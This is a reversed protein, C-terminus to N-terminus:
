STTKGIGQGTRLHRSPFSRDRLRLFYREWTLSILAGTGVSLSFYVGFRLLHHQDFLSAMFPLKLLWALIFVHSLYISYSWQGIGGVAKTVANMPFHRISFLVWVLLVGFALYILTFGVTLPFYSTDPDLFPTFSLLAIICFPAFARVRKAFHKIREPRFQEMWAILVGCLLSDFRLHTNTYLVQDLQGSFSLPRVAYSFLRMALALAMLVILTRPIANSSLSGHRGAYWLALCLAVYFHEEIALSWTITFPWWGFGYLYNQLFTLESILGTWSFQGGQINVWVAFPLLAYFTPYIKFGRRVLFRLPRVSGHLSYEKFLLGSVLYGSLVFFLDVGTWGMHDLWSVTHHHRFLVLIIAVGRLNDIALSRQM